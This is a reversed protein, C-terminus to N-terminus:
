FDREMQRIPDFLRDYADRTMMSSRMEDLQRRVGGFAIGFGGFGQELSSMHNVYQTMGGVVSPYSGRPSLVIDLATVSVIKKSDSM